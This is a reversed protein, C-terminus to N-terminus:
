TSRQYGAPHPRLIERSVISHARQFQMMVIETLSGFGEANVSFRQLM